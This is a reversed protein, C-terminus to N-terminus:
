LQYGRSTRTRWRDAVYLHLRGTLHRALLCLLCAQRSTRWVRRKKHQTGLLSATIVMKKFDKPIVRSLFYVWLRSATFRISEGSRWRAPGIVTRDVVTSNSYILTLIKIDITLNNPYVCHKRAVKRNLNRQKLADRYKFFIKKIPQTDCRQNDACLRIPRWKNM